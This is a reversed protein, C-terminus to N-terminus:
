SLEGNFAKQLISKKFEEFDLLKQQYIGELKKVGGLLLNIEKVLRKQEFLNPLSIRINKARSITFTGVTAGMSNDMIQSLVVDSMFAYQIYQSDVNGIKDFWLVSADKFYFRDIEKVIYSQGLTGVASIIIDGAKPAGKEKTFKKYLEPSIFLENDVYGFKSLKVVERARYFPIGSLKWDSKHVRKSSKVEFLEGIKKDENGQGPNSFIKNLYSEFLERANQLNKEANEKAKATKEFVNELIKVIRKQEPIPPVPTPYAYLREKRVGDQGAARKSTREVYRILDDTKLFWYFFEKDLIEENPVAKMLAVNYAGELGRFIGFIPPGYRGIMLDSKSCFRKAKEKPIYTAFKDTRYDRVQILRIYGKSPEFTFDKKPPQSGGIIECVEGFPKMEWCQKM